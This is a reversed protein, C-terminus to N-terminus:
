TKSNETEPEELKGKEEWKNGRATEWFEIVAGWGNGKTTVGKPSNM